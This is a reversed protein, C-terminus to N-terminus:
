VEKKGNSQLVPVDFAAHLAPPAFAGRQLTAAFLRVSGRFL